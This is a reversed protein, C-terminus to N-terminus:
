ESAIRPKGLSITETKEVWGLGQIYGYDAIGALVYEKHKHCDCSAVWPAHVKRCVPCQWGQQPQRMWDQWGSTVDM